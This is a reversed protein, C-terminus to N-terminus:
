YSNLQAERQREKVWRERKWDIKKKILVCVRIPYPFLREAEAQLDTVSRDDM